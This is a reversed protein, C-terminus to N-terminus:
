LRPRKTSEVFKRYERQRRAETREDQEDLWKLMATANRKWNMTGDSCAAMLAAQANTM